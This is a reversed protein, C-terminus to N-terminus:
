ILDLAATVSSWNYYAMIGLGVIIIGILTRAGPRSAEYQGVRRDVEQKDM